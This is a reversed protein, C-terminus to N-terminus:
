RFWGHPVNRAHLAAYGAKQDMSTLAIERSASQFYDFILISGVTVVAALFYLVLAAVKRTVNPIHVAKGYFTHVKNLWVIEKQIANEYVQWDKKMDRIVLYDLGTSFAAM